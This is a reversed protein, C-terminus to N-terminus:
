MYTLVVSYVCLIFPKDIKVVILFTASKV